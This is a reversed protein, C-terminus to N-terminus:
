PELTLNAVDDYIVHGAREEYIHHRCIGGVVLRLVVFVFIKGVRALKRM